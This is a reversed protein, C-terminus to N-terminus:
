DYSLEGREIMKAIITRQFAAMHLARIPRGPPNYGHWDGSATCAAFLDIAKRNLMRAQELDDDDLHDIVVCYPPSKEITILVFRRRAEGFVLNIVDIYHAASQFYGNRTASSEYAELSADEATKVDPIIEMVTPLVDPRARLWVGTKPDRAALTMEPEGATLLAGALEHKSVSEAMAQVLRFEGVSLITQGAAIAARYGDMSDSWKNTHRPDFGDPTLHYNAPVAGGILLVDHLARGVRFHRKDRRHVRRPNNPSQAWFHAPSKSTILKLGSSSISPGDCIEQAHYREGDIGPYAGPKTILQGSM